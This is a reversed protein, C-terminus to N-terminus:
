PLHAAGSGKSQGAWIPSGACCAQERHPEVGPSLGAPRRRLRRPRPSTATVSCFKSSGSILAARWFILLLAIGCRTRRSMSASGLARGHLVVLRNSLAPASM